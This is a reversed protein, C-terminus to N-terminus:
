ETVKPYKSESWAKLADVTETNIARIVRVLAYYESANGEFRVRWRQTNPPQTTSNPYQEVDAGAERLRNISNIKDEIWNYSFHYIDTNM